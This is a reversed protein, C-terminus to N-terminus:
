EVYWANAILKGNAMRYPISVRGARSYDLGEYFNRFNRHRILQFIAQGRLENM